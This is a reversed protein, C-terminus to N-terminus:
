MHKRFCVVLTPQEGTGRQLIHVVESGDRVYECRACIFCITKCM